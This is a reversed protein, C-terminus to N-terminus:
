LRYPAHTGLDPQITQFEICVLDAFALIDREIEIRVISTVCEPPAVVTSLLAVLKEGHYALWARSTDVDITSSLM